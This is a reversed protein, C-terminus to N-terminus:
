IADRGAPASSCAARRSRASPPTSGRIATSDAAVSEAGAGEGVAIRFREGPPQPLGSGLCDGAGASLCLVLVGGGARPPVRPDPGAILALLPHYRRPPTASPTVTERDGEKPEIPRGTLSVFVDDLSANRTTLSSLACGRAALREIM